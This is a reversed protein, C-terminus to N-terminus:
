DTSPHALEPQNTPHLLHNISQKVNRVLTLPTLSGEKTRNWFKSSLNRLSTRWGSSTAFRLIMSWVQRPWTAVSPSQPWQSCLESSTLPKFMKGPTTQTLLNPGSTKASNQLKCTPGKSSTLLVENTKVKVQSVLWIRDLFATQYSSIHSQKIHLDACIAM